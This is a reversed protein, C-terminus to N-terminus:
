ALVVVLVGLWHVVFCLTKDIVVGWVMVLVVSEVVVVFSLTSLM